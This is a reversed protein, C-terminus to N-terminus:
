GFFGGFKIFNGFILGLVLVFLGLIAKEYWTVARELLEFIASICIVAIVILLYVWFATM